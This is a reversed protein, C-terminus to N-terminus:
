AHQARIMIYLAIKVIDFKSRQWFRRWPFYEWNRRCDSIECDFFLLYDVQSLILHAASYKYDSELIFVGAYAPLLLIRVVHESLSDNPIENSVMKASVSLTMRTKKKVKKWEDMRENVKLQPYKLRDFELCLVRCLIRYFIEENREIGEIPAYEMWIYEYVLSVRKRCISCLAWRLTNAIRIAFLACLETNNIPKKMGTCECLVCM